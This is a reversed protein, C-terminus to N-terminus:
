GGPLLTRLSDTRAPLADRETAPSPAKEAWEKGAANLIDRVEAAFKEEFISTDFSHARRRCAETQFASEDNEFADLAASLSEVTQTPFFLGTSGERVTERAGGKGYAIVPRGAAMAEVPTIGFDEEGSFLFARCGAYLAPVASEPVRGTFVVSPGAMAELRRREPGDGAVVLPAGRQTCARVALDVRKYNVIEGFCLYYGGARLRGPVKQLSDMDPAAFREVEVPPYILRPERKWWRRIRRAVTQSNAIIVDPRQASAYDWLRLRHFFLRMFLRAVPGASELYDQHMDWLYRMPSHCYCIHPVDARVIVGKAPGSESSIVLDYARLDLQELALPMLPLYNRFRTAACPLKQIFTTRISHALLTPSLAEPRVAHAYLDAQPFLRCLAEVVKEGGRMGVLWYHVIAVRLHSFDNNMTGM